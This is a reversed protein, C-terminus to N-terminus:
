RRARRQGLIQDDTTATALTADIVHQEVADAPAVCGAGAEPATAAPAHEAGRAGERGWRCDTLAVTSSGSRLPGPAVLAGVDAGRVSGQSIPDFQDGPAWSPGRIM